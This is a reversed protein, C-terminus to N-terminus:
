ITQVTMQLNGNLQKTGVYQLTQVQVVNLKLVLTKRQAQKMVILHLLITALILNM